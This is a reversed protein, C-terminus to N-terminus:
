EDGGETPLAARWFSKVYEAGELMRPPPEPADYYLRKGDRMAVVCKGPIEDPSYYWRVTAHDHAQAELETVRATLREVEAVVKEHDAYPVTRRDSVTM